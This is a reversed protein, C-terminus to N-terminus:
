KKKLANTLAAEITDTLTPLRASTASNEMRQKLAAIKAMNNTTEKWRYATVGGDVNTTEIEESKARRLTTSVSALPNATYGSFDFGLSILRDRVNTATFWQGPSSKLIGRIADTLGVERLRYLEQLTELADLILARDSEPLLNAAASIFQECKVIEGDIALRQEHLGKLKALENKVIGFYDTDTM